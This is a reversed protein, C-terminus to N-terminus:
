NLRYRKLAEVGAKRNEVLLEKKIRQSWGLLHFWEHLTSKPIGTTATIERYSKGQRRLATAQERRTM